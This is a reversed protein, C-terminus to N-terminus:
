QASSLSASGANGVEGSGSGEGGGDATSAAFGREYDARVEAPTRNGLGQHPRQENYDLRWAEAKEAAEHVSQFWNENLFEDRYKGNFSEIYGNDMPKGPRTFHLKVGRRYAWQDLARGTFEPGNDVVIEFPLGYVDVARDLVRTVREGPISAAVELALSERTCEDLVTLNRFPRGSALTDRVFDMSWRQNPAKAPILRVREGAVMRRRRRRRVQLKEERYVRYVRKHNAHVGQRGLMEGLRRYGFRRRKQALECLKTRLETDAPRRGCYRHSSRGIGVLRCARRESLGHESRAISVAERMAAPKVM